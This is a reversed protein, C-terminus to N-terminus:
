LHMNATSTRTTSAAGSAPWNSPKYEILINAGASTCQSWETFDIGILPEYAAEVAAQIVGRHWSSTTDTPRWCVSISEGPFISGSGYWLAESKGAVQAEAPQVVPEGFCGSVAWSIAIFVCAVRMSLEGSGVVSMCTRRASLRYSGRAF